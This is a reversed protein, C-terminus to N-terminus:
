QLRNTKEGEIMEQPFHDEQPHSWARTSDRKVSFYVTWLPSCEARMESHNNEGERM